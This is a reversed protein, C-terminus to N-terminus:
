SARPGTRPAKAPAASRRGRPAVGDVSRRRLEQGDLADAHTGPQCSAVVEPGVGTIIAAGEAARSM